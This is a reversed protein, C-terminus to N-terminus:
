GYYNTIYGRTNNYQANNEHPLIIQMREIAMLKSSWDPGKRLLDDIIGIEGYHHLDQECVQLIEVHMFGIEESTKDTIKYFYKLM